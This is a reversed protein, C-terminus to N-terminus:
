AAVKVPVAPRSNIWAEVQWLHWGVHRTGLLRATPFEGKAIRAYIASTGLGTRRRVEDLRILHAEHAHEKLPLAAKLWAVHASELQEM